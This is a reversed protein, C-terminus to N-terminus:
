VHNINECLLNSYNVRWSDRPASGTELPILAEVFLIKLM